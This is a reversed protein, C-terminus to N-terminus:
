SSSDNMVVYNTVSGTINRQQKTRHSKLAKLFYHVFASFTRKKKKKALWYSLHVAWQSRLRVKRVSKEIRLVVELARIDTM